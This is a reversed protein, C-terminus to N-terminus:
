LPPQIPVTIPPQLLFCSVTAKSSLTLQQFPPTRIAKGPCPWHLRPKQTSQSKIIFCSTDNISHNFSWGFNLLSVRIVGAVAFYLLVAHHEKGLYIFLLYLLFHDWDIVASITDKGNSYFLCGRKDWSGCSSGPLQSYVPYSFVVQDESGSVPM